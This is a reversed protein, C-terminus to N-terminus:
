GIDDTSQVIQVGQRAFEKIRAETVEEFGQISSSCDNLFRFKRIVEPTQGFYRLISNMTEMVCHSRAQGAVYILDFNAVARLFKVNLEGDPHNSYKVEPEVVSYYETFPITGKPVYLPQAKRTGSHYIIAESLAPVLSRGSTGEMCHFPWIMLQKKGVQELERVYRVSWDMEFVPMWNGHRVDDATIVTYPAPHKGEGNKWWSPYFIQHPTHTDLSASIQTIRQVNRYLFEITRRADALAGPVPLRGLPAPFVFDVQMDVLWLLVRPSDSDTDRQFEALGTEYARQFDPEYLHEVNAPDYIAPYNM